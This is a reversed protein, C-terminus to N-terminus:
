EPAMVELQKDYYKGINFPSWLEPRAKRAPSQGLDYDRLKYNCFSYVKETELLL